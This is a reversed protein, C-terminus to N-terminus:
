STALNFMQRPRLQIAKFVYQEQPSFKEIDHLNIIYYIKYTCYYKRCIKVLKFNNIGHGKNVGKGYYAM